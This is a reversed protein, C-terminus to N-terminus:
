PHVGFMELLPILALRLERNNGMRKVYDSYNAQLVFAGIDLRAVSLFIAADLARPGHRFCQDLLAACVVRGREVDLKEVVVLRRGLASYFTDRNEKRIEEPDVEITENAVSRTARALVISNQLAPQTLADTLADSIEKGHGLSEAFVMSAFAWNHIITPNPATAPPLSFPAFLLPRDKAQIWLKAVLSILPTLWSRFEDPGVALEDAMRKQQNALLLLSLYAEPLAISPRSEAASKLINVIGALADSVGDRGSITPAILLAQINAVADSSKSQLSRQRLQTVSNQLKKAVSDDRLLSSDFDYLYFLTGAHDAQQQVGFRLITDVIRKGAEPVSGAFRKVPISVLFALAPRMIPWANAAPDITTLLDLTASVISQLQDRSFVDGYEKAIELATTKATWFSFSSLRAIIAEAVEPAIPSRIEPRKRALNCIVELSRGGLNDRSSFSITSKTALSVVYRLMSLSLDISDVSMLEIWQQFLEIVVKQRETRAGLYEESHKILFEVCNQDVYAEVLNENWVVRAAAADDGSEILLNMAMKFLDHQRSREIDGKLNEVISRAYLAKTSRSATALGLAIQRRLVAWFQRPSDRFDGNLWDQLASSPDHTTQLLPPLLLAARQDPVDLMETAKLRAVLADHSANAVLFPREAVPASLSRSFFEAAAAAGSMTVIASARSQTIISRLSSALENWASEVGRSLQLEAEGYLASAKDWDDADACLDGLHKIIVIALPGDISNLPPVVTAIFDDVTSSRLLRQAQIIADVLLLYSPQRGDRLDSLPKEPWGLDVRGIYLANELLRPSIIGPTAGVEEPVYIEADNQWAIARIHFQLYKELPTHVERPMLLWSDLWEPGSNLAEDFLQSITLEGNSVQDVIAIALERVLRASLFHRLATWALSHNAFYETRHNAFNSDM